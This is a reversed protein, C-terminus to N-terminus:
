GVSCLYPQHCPWPQPLTFLGGCRSHSTERLVLKKNLHAVIHFLITFVNGTCQHRITLSSVNQRWLATTAQDLSPALLLRHLSSLCRRPKRIIIFFVLSGMSFACTKHLTYLLYYLIQPLAGVVIGPSGLFGFCIRKEYM